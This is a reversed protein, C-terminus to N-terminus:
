VSRKSNVRPVNKFKCVASQSNDCTADRCSFLLSVVLLSSLCCTSASPHSPHFLSTMISMKQRKEIVLFCIIKLKSEFLLIFIYNCTVVDAEIM